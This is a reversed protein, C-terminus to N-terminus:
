KNWNVNSNHMYRNFYEFQNLKLIKADKYEKHVMYSLPCQNTIIFQKDNGLFKM